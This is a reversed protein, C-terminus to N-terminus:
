KIIQKITVSGASYQGEAISLSQNQIKGVCSFKAIKSGDISYLFASISSDTQTNLGQGYTQSIGYPNLNSVIDNAEVSMEAEISEVSVRTPVVGDPSTNVSTHEGDRIHNYEKRNVVINYGLKKIEFDSGGTSANLNGFSKLAHVFDNETKSTEMASSKRVSGYINYSATAEIIQFPTLSFGFSKLYMNDFRYRGVLNNHIPYEDMGDKIEFMRQINNTINDKKFDEATILFTIDLTGRIGGVPAFNVFDVKAGGTEPDYDGYVREAQLSPAISLNASKVFLDKGGVMIKGREFRLFPDSM